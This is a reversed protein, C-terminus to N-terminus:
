IVGPMKEISMKTLEDFILRRSMQRSGAPPHRLDGIESVSKVERHVYRPSPLSRQVSCELSYACGLVFFKVSTWPASRRHLLADTMM